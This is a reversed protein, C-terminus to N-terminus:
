AYWLKNSPGKSRSTRPKFDVYGIPLDPGSPVCGVHSWEFVLKLTSQTEYL